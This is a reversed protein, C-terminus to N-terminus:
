RKPLQRLGVIGPFGFYASGVMLCGVVGFICIYNCLQLYPFRNANNYVGCILNQREEGFMKLDAASDIEITSTLNRQYIYILYFKTEMKYYDMSLIFIHSQKETISSLFDLFLTSPLVLFITAFKSSQRTKM